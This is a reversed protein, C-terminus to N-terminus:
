VGGSENTRNERASSRWSRLRAFDRAISSWVFDVTAFAYPVVLFYFPYISVKYRGHGEILQEIVAFGLVISASLVGPAVVFFPRAASLFLGICGLLFIVKFFMTGSDALPWVWRPERRGSKDRFAIQFTSVAGHHYVSSGHINRFKRLMLMPYKKWDRRIAEKVAESRREAPMANFDRAFRGSYFGENEVNLGLALEYMLASPLGVPAATPPNGSLEFLVAQGVHQACRYAPYFVLAVAVLRLLFARNWCRFAGIVLLVATAALFVVATSKFLGSFALLVGGAFMMLVVDLGGRRGDLADLLCNAALVMLSASLIESTLVTSYMMIAPSFGMMLVAFRAARRGAVRESLRFLPLLAIACCVAQFLEGLQQGGKFLGALVSMLIEYNCWALYNADHFHCIRGSKMSRLVQAPDYTMAEPVQGLAPLLVIFAVYAVLCLLALSYMEAQASYSPHRRSFCEFFAWIGFLSFGYLLAGLFPPSMVYGYAFKGTCSPIMLVVGAAIMCAAFLVAACAIARVALTGIESKKM